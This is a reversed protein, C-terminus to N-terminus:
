AIPGAWERAWDCTLPRCSIARRGKAEVHREFWGNAVEQFSEPGEVRQGGKVRNIIDRAKARPAVAIYSKGGTPSVRIYHGPLQPDPQAYLKNRPKLAAVSKDTLTKRAM